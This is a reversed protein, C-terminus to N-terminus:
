RAGLLRTLLSTLQRDCGPPTNVEVRAGTVILALYEALEGVEECVGATDCVFDDDYAAKSVMGDSEPVIRLVPSGDSYNAFDVDDRTPDAQCALMMALVDLPAKIAAQDEESMRSNILVRIEGIAIRGQAEIAKHLDDEYCDGVYVCNITTTSVKVM